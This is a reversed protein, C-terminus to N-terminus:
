REQDSSHTTQTENETTWQHRPLTNQIPQLPFSGLVAHQEALAM